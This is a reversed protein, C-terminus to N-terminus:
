KIIDNITQILYDAEDSTTHHSFCIRFASMARKKDHTLAYVVRSMMNDAACASKVSVYIGQENLADRMVHGRFGDISINLINPISGMPTNIHINPNQTLADMVKQKIATIYAHHAAQTSVALMTAAATSAALAVAPTGARYCTDSAGGVIQPELIIKKNKILIGSGPIGGIKHASVSMMDAIGADVPIKGVAQAADVHLHTQAHQSRNHETIIQSVCSMPQIIGLEADVASVCVLVTDKRLAKKLADLDIVGSADLKLLEIVYGQNVLDALVTSVSAHELVTTLIHKGVHRYASYIGKIALNNSETAGSTMVIEYADANNPCLSQGICQKSQQLINQADAGVAHQANANGPHHQMIRNFEALVDGEVPASSGYDLYVNKIQKASTECKSCM